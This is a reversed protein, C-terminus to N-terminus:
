VMRFRLHLTISWSLCVGNCQQYERRTLYSLGTDVYQKVAYSYNMVAWLFMGPRLECFQKLDLSFLRPNLERGIFFDHIHLGANGVTSLM